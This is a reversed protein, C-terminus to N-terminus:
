TLDYGGLGDAERNMAGIRQRYVQRGYLTGVRDYYVGTRLNLFFAPDHAPAEGRWWKPLFM